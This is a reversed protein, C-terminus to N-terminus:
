AVLKLLGAKAQRDWDSVEIHPLEYYPAHPRGYWLLTDPLAPAMVTTFWNHDYINPNGDIQCFMDIAANWNHSSQGFQAKTVKKALAADQDLEGRGACSIHAEPHAAQFGEFWSRLGSHFGYYRDFILRCRPCAGNNEHKPLM